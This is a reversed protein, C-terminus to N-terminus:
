RSPEARGISATKKKQLRIIKLQELLILLKVLSLFFLKNIKCDLYFTLFLSLSLHVKVLSNVQRAWEAPLNSAPLFFEM